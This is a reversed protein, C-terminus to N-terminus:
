SAQLSSLLAYQRSVEAQMTAEQAKRHRAQARRQWWERAAPVAFVAGVVMIWWPPIHARVGTVALLLVASGCVLLARGFTVLTLRGSKAGACGCDANLGRRLATWTAYCFSVGLLLTLSPGAPWFWGGLVLVGAAGEALPLAVGAAGAFRSPFLDYRGISRSTGRIDAMKLSATYFFLSSVWVRVAILIISV